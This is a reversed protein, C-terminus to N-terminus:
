CIRPNWIRDSYLFSWPSLLLLTAFVLATREGKVQRVVRAWLGYGLMNLLVVLVMCSLPSRVLLLPLSILLSFTAGPLRAPGGTVPAGLGPIRCTEVVAHAEAYFRAEDGAFRAQGVFYLRLGFALGFLVLWPLWRRVSRSRNPAV